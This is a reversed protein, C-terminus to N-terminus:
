ILFCTMSPEIQNVEETIMKTEEVLHGTANNHANQSIQTGIWELGSESDVREQEGHQDVFREWLM